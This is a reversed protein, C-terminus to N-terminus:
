KRTAARKGPYGLVASDAYPGMGLIPSSGEICTYMRTYVLRVYVYLHVYVCVCECTRICMYTYINEHLQRFMGYLVLSKYLLGLMPWGDAGCLAKEWGRLVMGAGPLRDELSAASDTPQSALFTDWFVQWVASYMYIYIYM